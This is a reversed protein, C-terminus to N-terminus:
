LSVYWLMIITKNCIYANIYYKESIINVTVIKVSFKFQTIYYM